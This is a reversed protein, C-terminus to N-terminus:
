VETHNAKILAFIVFAALVKITKGLGMEDGLCGGPMGRKLFQTVLWWVAHLQYASITLKFGVPRHETINEQCQFLRCLSTWNEASITRNAFQGGLNEIEDQHGEEDADNDM